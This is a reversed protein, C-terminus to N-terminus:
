PLDATARATADADTVHLGSIKTVGNGLETVTFADTGIVPGAAIATSANASGVLTVTLPQSGTHGHGDVYYDTTHGPDSPPPMGWFSGNDPDSSNAAMNHIMTYDASPLIGLPNMYQRYDM